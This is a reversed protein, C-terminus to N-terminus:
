KTWKILGLSQSNSLFIVPLNTRSTLTKSSQDSPTKNVHPFTNGPVLQSTDIVDNRHRNHGAATGRRTPKHSSLGLSNITSWVEFSIRSQNHQFSLLM